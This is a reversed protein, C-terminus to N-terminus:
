PQDKNECLYITYERFPKGHFSVVVREVFTITNFDQQLAVPTPEGTIWLARHPAKKPYTLWFDFQNSPPSHRLTYIFAKDPLHFSFISAEKYGDAILVDAHQEGRLDNLHAAIESWGAVRGMPDMKQPLHLFETDHMLLTQLWAFVFVTIIFPQGRTGTAVMKRWQAAMIIILTLYSVAPWNPECNLHWALVAYMLFVPLFLFFLLLEGENIRVGKRPFRRVVVIMVTMLLALFLWPSIVLAQLGLFNFFTSYHIEFPGNLHGRNELQTASVWGHQWNWWLVPTACLAAVALMLWFHPKLLLRRRSPVVLLFALFTILELANIYKALFGCGVAFGTLLWDLLREKQVARSFLHAAWIWFFASLPDITMVVAGLAYIPVVNTILVAILATTEDYWRRALLFMQWATGASLMVAFFRVGFNNDGWLATGAAITYAIAPGKSFYSADLHRSWQFYYAEDPLLPLWTCYFFRFATTLAIVLIAASAPSLGLFRPPSDSAVNM